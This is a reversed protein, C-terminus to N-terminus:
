RMKNFDLPNKQKKFKFLSAPLEADKESNYLSVVVEIGQSDVIKWQKLEFPRNGFVLTIPGIDQNKQYEIVAETTGADKYFDVIKFNKGDIKVDNSLILSAPIDDYDFHTVQDLDKDNYVIDRGDGVILVNVPSDYEMRIKNPKEIYLKGEATNGNGATQVFSAKLTKIGNLYTEIKRSDETTQALSPFSACFCFIGLFFVTIKKM